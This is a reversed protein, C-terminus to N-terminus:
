YVENNIQKELKDFDKELDYLENNIEEIQLLLEECEKPHKKYLDLIDDTLKESNDRIDELELKEKYFNM